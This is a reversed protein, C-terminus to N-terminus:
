SVGLSIALVLSSFTTVGGRSSMSSGIKWVGVPGEFSPLIELSPEGFGLPKPPSSPIGLFGLGPHLDFGGSRLGRTEYWGMSLNQFESTSRSPSSNLVFGNNLHRSTSLRLDTSSLQVSTPSASVFLILYSM